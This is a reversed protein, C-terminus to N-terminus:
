GKRIWRFRFVDRIRQAFHLGMRQTSTKFEIRHFDKATPKAPRKGFASMILGAAMGRFSRSKKWKAM